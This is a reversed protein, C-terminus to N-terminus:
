LLILSVTPPTNFIMFISPLDTAHFSISLSPPLLTPFPSSARFSNSLIISNAHTGSHIGGKHLDVFELLFYIILCVHSFSSWYLRLPLPIMLSSISYILNWAHVIKDSHVWSIHMVITSLLFYHSLISFSNALLHFGFLIQVLM